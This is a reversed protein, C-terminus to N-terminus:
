RICFPLCCLFRDMTPLMCIINIFTFQMNIKCKLILFKGRPNSVEHIDSVPLSFHFGIAVGKPNAQQTIVFIGSLM